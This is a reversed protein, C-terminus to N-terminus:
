TTSCSTARCRTRPTATATPGRGSSRSSGRASSRRRTPSATASRRRAARRSPRTARTGAPTSRPPKSRRRSAPPSTPRADRARAARHAVPHPHGRRARRRTPRHEHHRVHGLRRGARRVPRLRPPGHARGVGRAIRQVGWGPATPKDSFGYGPLSPCVVHFADAADGGYAPPDVLPGIVKSFEVVSGPWGHTLVLPFAGAHPSRAHVFHIAVPRGTSRRASSRSRTSRAGRRRAFDYEDHWYRCLDQVYALPM